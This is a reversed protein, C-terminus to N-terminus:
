QDTMNQFAVPAPEDALQSEEPLFAKAFGSLAAISIWIGFFVAAALGAGKLQLYTIEAVLRQKRGMGTFLSDDTM